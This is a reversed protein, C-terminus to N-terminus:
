AEGLINTFSVNYVGFLVTIIWCIKAPNIKGGRGCLWPPQKWPANSHRWIGDGCRDGGFVSKSIYRYFCRTASLQTGACSSFWRLSANSRSLLFSNRWTLTVAVSYAPADHSTSDPQVTLTPKSGKMWHQVRKNPKHWFVFLIIM